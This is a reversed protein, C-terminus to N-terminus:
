HFNLDEPIHCYKSQYRNGINQLFKNGGDELDLCDLFLLWVLFILINYLYAHNPYRALTLPLTTTSSAPTYHITISTFLPTKIGTPLILIFTILIAHSAIVCAAM